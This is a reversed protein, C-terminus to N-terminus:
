DDKWFLNEELNPPEGGYEKLTQACAYVKVLDCDDSIGLCMYSQTSDEPKVDLPSAENHGEVPDFNIIEGRYIVEERKKIEVSQDTNISVTPTASLRPSYSGYPFICRAQANHHVLIFLLFFLKSLKM